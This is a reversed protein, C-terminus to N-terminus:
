EGVAFAACQDARVALEGPHARGGPVGVRDEGVEDAASAAVQDGGDFAADPAAVVFGVGEDPSGAPDGVGADDLAVFGEGEGAVWVARDDEALDVRHVARGVEVQAQLGGGAEAGVGDM